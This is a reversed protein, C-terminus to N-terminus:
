SWTGEEAGETKPLRQIPIYPHLSGFQFVVREKLLYPRMYKLSAKFEKSSLSAKFEKNMLRRRGLASSVATYRYCRLLRVKGIKIDSKDLQIFYRTPGNAM